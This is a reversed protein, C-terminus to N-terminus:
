TKRKDAEDYDLLLDNHKKKNKTKQMKQYAVYPNKMVKAKQKETM